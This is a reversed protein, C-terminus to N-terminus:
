GFGGVRYNVTVFIVPKGQNISSQVWPSGDYMYNWGLEFGGGYIWFLVPLKDGPKTGAPRHVNLYLCDEGANLIKQILPTNLLLGLAATPIADELVTSFIFQPCSMGNKQAKIVGQDGTLPVPPRLRLEGVPKKAFPIGPFQEVKGGLGVITAQPYAISVTPAVTARAEIDAAERAAIIGEVEEATPARPINAPLAAALGILSLITLSLKMKVAAPLLDSCSRFRKNVQSSAQSSFLRPLLSATSISKPLVLAPNRCSCM